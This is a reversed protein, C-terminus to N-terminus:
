YPQITFLVKAPSILLCLILISAVIIGAIKLNKSKIALAPLIYSINRLISLILLITAIAKKDYWNDVFTQLMMITISTIFLVGIFVILLVSSRDYKSNKNEM